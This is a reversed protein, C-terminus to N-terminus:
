LWPRNVLWCLLQIPPFLANSLDGCLARIHENFATPILHDVAVHAELLSRYRNPGFLQAVFHKRDVLMYNPAESGWSAHELAVHTLDAVAHHLRNNRVVAYQM